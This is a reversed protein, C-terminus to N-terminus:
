VLSVERETGCERCVGWMVAGLIHTIVFLWGNCEKEICKGLPMITDEWVM